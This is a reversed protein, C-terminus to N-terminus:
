VSAALMVWEYGARGSFRLLGVDDGPGSHRVVEASSTRPVGHGGKVANYGFERINSTDVSIGKVLVM